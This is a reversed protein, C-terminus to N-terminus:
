YLNNSIFASGNDTQIRVPMRNDRGRLAEMVRVVNDGKLLKGAHIAQCEWSFNDVVTLVSFRRGNFLNDSM